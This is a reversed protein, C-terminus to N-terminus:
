SHTKLSSALYSEAKGASIGFSPKFIAVAEITMTLKSHTIVHASGKVVGAHLVNAIVEDNKEQHSTTKKEQYLKNRHYTPSKIFLVGRVLVSWVATALTSPPSSTQAEVTWEKEHQSFSQKEM